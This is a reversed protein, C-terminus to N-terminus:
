NAIEITWMVSYTSWMLNNESYVGIMTTTFKILLIIYFQVAIM